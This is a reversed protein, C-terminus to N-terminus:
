FVYVYPASLLSETPLDNKVFVQVEVARHTCEQSRKSATYLTFCKEGM